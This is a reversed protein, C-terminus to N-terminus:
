FQIIGKARLELAKQILEMMEPTFRCGIDCGDSAKKVGPSDPMLRFDLNAPDRFRPTEKTFGSKPSGHRFGRPIICNRVTASDVNYIWAEGIISDELIAGPLVSQLLGVITCCRVHSPAHAHLREGLILCNTFATAKGHFILGLIVSDTVQVPTEEPYWGGIVHSSPVTTIVLSRRILCSSGNVVLATPLSKDQPPSGQFFVITLRDIIVSDARIEVLTLPPDSSPPFIVPYRNKAGRLTIGRQTVRVVEVYPGADEIEVLSFPSAHELATRISTFDGRGDQRVVIRKGLHSTAAQIEALPHPRTRDRGPLSDPYKALLERAIERADFLENNLYKDVCELYLREAELHRMHTKLLVRAANVSAQTFNYWPTERYKLDQRELLDRTQNLTTEATRIVQPVEQRKGQQILTRIQANIEEQRELAKIAFNLAGEFLPWLWPRPDEGLKEAEQFCREAETAQGNQLALLGLALWDEGRVQGFLQGLLKATALQRWGTSGVEAWPIEEQKGSILHVTLGKQDARIVEGGVGKLGLTAKKLPPNASAIAQILREKFQELRKLGERRTSLRHALDPDDFSIQALAELAAAFEWETALRDAEATAQRFAAEKARWRELEAEAALQEASKEPIPASPTEAAMGEAPPREPLAEQSPATAVQQTALAELERLLAQVPEQFEPLGFQEWVERLLEQAQQLQGAQALQRAEAALKQYREEAAKQIQAVARNRREVLAPERLRDAVERLHAIAAGFQGQQILEQAQAEAAEWDIEWPAKQPKPSKTPPASDGAPRTPAKAIPKEEKRSEGAPPSKWLWWGVSTLMLVLLGAAVAVPLPWRTKGFIWSQWGSLPKTPSPIPQTAEKAELSVTEEEVLKKSQSRIKGLCLELAVAVEEMSQYRDEPRKAVMRQYIWELEEPAEPRRERLSPIPDERHALIVEWASSGQYPAEGTLLRYLTCGLSYIDARHDAHHSSIAQEPAMYEFTGMVQGSRTLEETQRGEWSTVRALGMDLIKVVGQRDLLLNSPKVDRHIIGQSHAYALGKAAQLIYAVAEEVPLPGREQVLKGLDEGEVYEMVLYHIGEHEGADFATVINPHVLRAAARVERHFRAVAGPASMARPSLTKLAVTRDMRRHLARYVVGMGGGGLRDLLVYEGLILKRGRGKAIQQIQFLTLRGSQLLLQALQEVTKPQKEPPLSQELRTLEEASILGSELVQRRFEGVTVGM